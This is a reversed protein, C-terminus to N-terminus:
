PVVLNKGSHLISRGHQRIKDWRHFNVTSNSEERDVKVSEILKLDESHKNRHCERM